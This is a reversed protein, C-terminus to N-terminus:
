EKGWLKELDEKKMGQMQQQAQQSSRRMEEPTMNKMMNKAAERMMPNNKMMEVNKKMMEPDVGMARMRAEEAPGMKEMQEFMKDMDDDSMNKVANNIDELQKSSLDDGITTTPTPTASPTVTSRIKKSFKKKAEKRAEAMIDDEFYDQVENWVREFGTRDVRTAGLSGDAWCEKLESPSLDFERDGSLLQIVPLSAFGVFTCGGSGSESMLEAVKFMTDIVDKEKSGPGAAALEDEKAEQEKKQRQQETMIDVAQDLSEKPISNIAKNTAEMDETTMTAMRKQAERSQELLEQPSMNEM